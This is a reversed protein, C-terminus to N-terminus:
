DTPLKPRVFAAPPASISRLFALLDAKEPPTLKTPRVLPDLNKSHAPDSYHDIIKELSTLAGDHMWPGTRAVDRLSPTKMKGLDADQHTVQYYGKDFGALGNNHFGNDSFLPGNHCNMCGAKTRFIHLGSLEQDSLKNRNGLLFSDFRSYQSRITRQFAALAITIREPDAHEDGFIERISSRYYPIRNIARVVAGMEHHMESESNIPAFAQDELSHSRGDWFLRKYFWTNQITPANRKNM